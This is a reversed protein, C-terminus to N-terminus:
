AARMGLLAQTALLIESAMFVGMTDARDVSWMWDGMAREAITAAPLDANLKAALRALISYESVSAAKTNYPEGTRGVYFARLDSLRNLAFALVKRPIAPIGKAVSIATACCNSLQIVDNPSFAALNLEPYLTAIEPQIIDYLLDSPAVAMKVVAYCHDALTSLAADKRENAVERVFDPDYDVLYSNGAFSRTGFSYYNRIIWIGQDIGGHRSYGDLVMLALDADAPRNFAKAGIWLGRALRLAETTGSADSKEGAKWRWPVFGRTYPDDRDDRILNKRAADRLAAYGEADGAQAFYILLQAADVTYIYGDARALQGRAVWDRVKGHLRDRVDTIKPSLKNLDSPQEPHADVSPPAALSGLGAVAGITIASQLIQRRTSLSLAKVLRREPVFFGRPSGLVPINVM